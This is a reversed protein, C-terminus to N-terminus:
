FNKINPINDIVEQKEEETKACSLIVLTFEQNMIYCGKNNQYDYDEDERLISRYNDLQRFSDFNFILDTPFHDPDNFQEKFDPAIKDIFICMREGAKVAQVLTQRMKELGEQKTIQGIKIGIVTRHFETMKNKVEFFLGVDGKAEFVLSYLNKNKAIQIATDIDKLQFEYRGNHPLYTGPGLDEESDSDNKKMSLPPM